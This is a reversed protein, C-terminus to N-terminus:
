HKGYHWTQRMANIYQLLVAAPKAEYYHTKIGVTETELEGWSPIQSVFIRNYVCWDCTTTYADMSEFDKPFVVRIEDKEPKLYHDMIEKFHMLDYDTANELARCVIMEEYSVKTNAAIHNALVLGYIMCVKPCEANITKKLLNAVIIAKEESSQIYTYLQNLRAEMNLGTALGKLLFGLKFKHYESLFQDGISGVVGAVPNAAGLASVSGSRVMRATPTDLVNSLLNGIDTLDYNKITTLVENRYLKRAKGCQEQTGIRKDGCNCSSSCLFVEISTYYM